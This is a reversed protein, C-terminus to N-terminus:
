CVALQTTLSLSMCIYIYSSNIRARVCVCPYIPIKNFWPIYSSHVLILHCWVGEVM